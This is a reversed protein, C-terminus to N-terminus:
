ATISRLKGSTNFRTMYAQEATLYLAKTDFQGRIVPNDVDVYITPFGTKIHLHRQDLLYVRSAGDSAVNKDAVIPREEYTRVTFTIDRGPHVASTSLGAMDLKAEVASDAMFRGATVMEDYIKRRTDRGTLWVQSASDAGNDETGDILADLGGLQFALDTGFTTQSGDPRAVYADFDTGTDRDVQGEYVDYAGTFSGGVDDEEADSSVLRDISELGLGNADNKADSTNAGLAAAEAEADRLLEENLLQAHVDRMIQTKWQWVDLGDDHRARFGADLTLDFPSHLFAPISDLETPATDIVAGVTGADAGGYGKTAPDTTTVRFGSREWDEKGVIAHANAERNVQDYVLGGYTVNIAGGLNSVDGAKAIRRYYQHWPHSGKRFAYEVMSAVDNSLLDSM